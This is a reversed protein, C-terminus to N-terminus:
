FDYTFDNEPKSYQMELMKILDAGVIFGSQKPDLSEIVSKQRQIADQLSVEEIMKAELEEKNTPPEPKTGFVFKAFAAINKM